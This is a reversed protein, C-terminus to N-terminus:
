AASDCFADILDELMAGEDTLKYNEDFGVGALRTTCAARFAEAQLHAIEVEVTRPPPTAKFVRAAQAVDAQLDAPVFETSLIYECQAQSLRIVRLLDHARDNDRMTEPPDVGTPTTSELLMTLADRALRRVADWHPDSELADVRWLTEDDGGSLEQLAADLREVATRQPDTLEPVAARWVDDLELALEDASPAVGLEELYRVQVGPPAALRQVADVLQAVLADRSNM